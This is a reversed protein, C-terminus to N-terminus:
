SLSTQTAGIVAVYQANLPGEKVNLTGNLIVGIRDQTLDAGSIGQAVTTWTADIPGEKVNLTSGSVVGIRDGSLLVDNGTTIEHWTASLPGEKVAVIGNAVVAIRNGDIEFDTVPASAYQSTWVANVPGEKVSLVGGTVAAIRDQTVRVAQGNTVTTWVANLPGEKVLIQGNRVIGIRNGGLDFDSVGQAVINWTANTPGEKVSMTGDHWLVGIRDGEVVVKKTGGTAVSSWVANLPGEKIKVTGDAQLAAIRPLVTPAPTVPTVTSGAGNFEWHWPEASVGQRAWAPLVWGFAPANNRMWNHEATGFSNINTSLDVALGWGHNSTGPVATVPQGVKLWWRTGNWVVSPRGTLQSTTYRQLFISQQVSYPRYSDTIGINKNFQAKFQVNLQEFAQAADPRLKHATNWSISTLASAPIQGNSHGGWPGPEATAAPAPILLLGILALSSLISAALRRHVAGPRRTSISM